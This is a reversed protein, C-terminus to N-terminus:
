RSIILTQKIIVIIALRLNQETDMNNKTAQDKHVEFLIVITILVEAQRATLTFTEALMGEVAMKLASSRDRICM